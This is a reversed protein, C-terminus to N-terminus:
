FCFRSWADAAVIKFSSLGKSDLRARGARSGSMWLDNRLPAGSLVQVQVSACHFRFTIDGQHFFFYLFINASHFTNQRCLNLHLRIFQRDPMCKNAGLDTFRASFGGFLRCVRRFLCLRNFLIDSGIIIFKCLILFQKDIILYNMFIWSTICPKAM